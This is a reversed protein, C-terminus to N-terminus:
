GRIADRRCLDAVLVHGLTPLEFQERSIAELPLGLAAARDVASELEAVESDGLTHLGDGRAFLEEGRWAAPIDQSEMASM